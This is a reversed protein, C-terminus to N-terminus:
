KHVTAYCVEFYENPDIWRNKVNFGSEVLIKQFAEPTYKYSYETIIHEGNSIYIEEGDLQFILPKNAVLHMEIRSEREHFFAFHEFDDTSIQTNFEEAIREILHLNFQATIGRKDNYAAELISREKVRDFGIVLSGNSGALSAANRLFAIAEEPEFNGITSGPFFIVNKGNGDSILPLTLPDTYDTWLPRIDLFPFEKALERSAQTLQERSIDIPIYARPSDLAGLLMRTKIGAGTGFEIVLANPGILSAIEPLHERLISIETRTPYYEEVRTIAEFLRSGREDYFLKSPIRKPSQSLGEIVERKFTDSSTDTAPNILHILHNFISSHFRLKARCLDLVNEDVFYKLGDM